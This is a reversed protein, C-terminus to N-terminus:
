TAIPELVVLCRGGTLRPWRSAGEDFARLLGSLKRPYLAPKSFGGSLLYHFAAFAESHRLRWQGAWAESEGRFFMRTANGQAAYYRDPPMATGLDILASFAVPELHFVGYALWSAVSIYPEFLILRGGPGLVRKAERFLAAPREIHHFVDFLILHSVVSDRLPLSYGSCVLDLWGNFFLDSAVAAPLHEKLNGVGSGIEVITGAATLDIQRLIRDYFGAYIERLLPKSRWAELNSDVENEHRRDRM